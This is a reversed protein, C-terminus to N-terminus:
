SFNMQFVLSSGHLILSNMVVYDSCFPEDFRTEDGEGIGGKERWRWRLLIKLDGLNGASQIETSVTDFFWFRVAIRRKFAGVRFETSVMPVRKM